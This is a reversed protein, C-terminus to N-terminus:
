DCCQAAARLVQATNRGTTAWDFLSARQLARLIYENRVKGGVSLDGSVVREILLALSASDGTPYYLAGDGFIEPMPEQFCSINLCGYSLAELVINPCAEARSTQVFAQCNQYCWKMEAAHLSGVWAIRDSVGLQKALRKLCEEYSSGLGGSSGALVIQFIDKGEKRLCSAAKILDEYGRYPVISGAAFVFKQEIDYAPKKESLEISDHVGHYIVAIREEPLSFRKMLWYKVHKSVAIVMDSARCARWHEIRLALLRLRWLLPMRYKPEQIPEINQVITVVPKKFGKIPRAVLNLVVDCNSANVAAVIARFNSCYDNAPALVVDNGGLVSPDLAGEPCYVICQIGQQIEKFHDLVAQLHKIGGLSMGRRAPVM